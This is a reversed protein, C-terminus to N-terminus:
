LIKEYMKKLVPVTSDKGFHEVAYDRAKKSIRDIKKRDGLIEETFSMLEGEDVLYGNEGNRVLGKITTSLAIVPVGCSMAEMFVKPIGESLSPHVMLTSRSIVDVLEKGFLQKPM